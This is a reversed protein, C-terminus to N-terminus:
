EVPIKRGDAHICDLAFLQPATNQRLEALRKPEGIADHVRELLANLRELQAPNAAVQQFGNQLVWEPSYGFVQQISPSVYNPTVQADTS